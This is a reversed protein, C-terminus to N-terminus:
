RFPLECLSEIGANFPLQLLEAIASFLAKWPEDSTM